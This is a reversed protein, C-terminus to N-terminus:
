ARKFILQLMKRNNAYEWSNKWEGPANIHEISKMKSEFMEFLCNKGHFITSYISNLLKSGSVGKRYFIILMFYVYFFIRLTMLEIGHGKEVRFRFPSFM